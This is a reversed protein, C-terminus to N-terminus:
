LKRTWSALPNKVWGFTRELRRAFKAAIEKPIFAEMYNYGKAKLIPPMDRHLAELASKKALPSGEMPWLYGELIRVAAFATVINGDADEVVLIEEIDPWSPYPYGSAIARAELIPIDLPLLPRTLM